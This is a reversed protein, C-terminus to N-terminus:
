FRSRTTGEGLRVAVGGVRLPEVERMWRDLDGDGAALGGIVLRGLRRSGGSGRIDWGGELREEVM